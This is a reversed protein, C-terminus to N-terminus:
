LQSSTANAGVTPAVGGMLNLLHDAVRLANAAITLAPNTGASSPFFSADVVYLNELGHARNNSDLVSVAPNMGFRCTGCAHAIRHNNDAQKVLRTPFPKLTDKVLNRMHEIRSQDDPHIRYHLCAQGGAGLSVRNDLYPPDEVISALALYREALHTMVGHALPSVLGLFAGLGPFRAEDKLSRAMIPAPPLRGFSQVTGLKEGDVIYFDNFAIEKFRNDIKGSRTDVLFLDIYHRMLNKGVMGSRNAVGQPWDKSTSRLLIAPTALAGAALVVVRSRLKFIEGGRQCAVGTVATRNSELELVECQDLLNAGHLRIAPDLCIRGSHNKCNKACLYGQCCQCGEVYECAMPIQYPHLGKAAVHRFIAEVGQTLPPPTMLKQSGVDIRLPDATGRVRYLNEAAEYYPVLDTYTIPWAEPLNIAKHGLFPALPAFDCPFFREMAMGFLASSGGKGSGIFPVFHHDFFHSQDDIEDCWRGARTLAFRQQGFPAVPSPFFREAYDGALEAEPELNAWGKECFLVRLGGRALAYGLTSGGQGAGIVIVDWVERVAEQTDM